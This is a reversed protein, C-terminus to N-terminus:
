KKDWMDHMDELDHKKGKNKKERMVIARRAYWIKGPVVGINLGM